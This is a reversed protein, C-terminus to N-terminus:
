SDLPEEMYSRQRNETQLTLASLHNCRGGTRIMISGPFSDVWFCYERLLINTITLLNFWLYLSLHNIFFPLLIIPTGQVSLGWHAELDLLLVTNVLAFFYRWGELIWCYYLFDCLPRQPNFTYNWACVTSEM